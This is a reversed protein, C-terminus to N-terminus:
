PRPTAFGPVNGGMVRDITEQPRGGVDEAGVGDSGAHESGTGGGIIVAVQGGVDFRHDM